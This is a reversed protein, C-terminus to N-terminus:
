DQPQQLHCLTVSKDIPNVFKEFGNKEFFNIARINKENLMVIYMDDFIREVCNLWQILIEKKRYEINIGFSFLYNEPKKIIVTFGISIAFDDETLVIKYYEIGFDYNDTGELITNLGHDVCQEFTGQITHYKEYLEHDDAWGISIYKRLEEPEIRILQVKM